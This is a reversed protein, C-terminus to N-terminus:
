CYSQSKWAIQKSVKWIEPASDKCKNAGLAPSLAGRQLTEYDPSWLGHLSIMAIQRVSHLISEMWPICCQGLWVNVTCLSFTLKYSVSLTLTHTHTPPTLHSSSFSLFLSVARLSSLSSSLNHLFHPTFTLSTSSQTHSTPLSHPFAPHLVPIVLCLSTREWPRCNASQHHHSHCHPLVAVERPPLPPLYLLSPLCFLLLLLLFFHCSRRTWKTVDAMFFSPMM